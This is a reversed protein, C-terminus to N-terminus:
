PVDVGNFALVPIIRKRSHSAAIALAVEASQWQSRISDTAVVVIVVDSSNIADALRPGWLEGPQVITDDAIIGFGRRSLEDRLKTALPTGAATHSLFIKM